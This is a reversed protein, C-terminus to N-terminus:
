SYGEKEEAYKSRKDQKRKVALMGVLYLMIMPLAVFWM